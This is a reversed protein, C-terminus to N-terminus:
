IVEERAFYIGGADEGLGWRYTKSDVGVYKHPMSEALHTTVQQKLNILETNNESKDELEKLKNDITDMNSNQDAVDYFEGPEPKVFNYNPTHKVM